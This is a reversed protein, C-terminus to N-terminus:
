NLLKLYPAIAATHHNLRERPDDWAICIWLPGSSEVTGTGYEFHDVRDDKELDRWTLTTRDPRRSLADDVPTRVLGHTLASRNEESKRM